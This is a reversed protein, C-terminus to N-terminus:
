EASDMQLGVGDFIEHPLPHLEGHYHKVTLGLQM